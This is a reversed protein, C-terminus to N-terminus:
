GEKRKSATLTTRGINSFPVVKDITKQPTKGKITLQNVGLHHDYISEVIMWVANVLELKQEETLDFQDVYQRYPTIDTIM